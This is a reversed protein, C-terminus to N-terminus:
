LGLEVQGNLHTTVVGGDALHTVKLTGNPSITAGHCNYCGFLGGPTGADLHVGTNPPVGHCSGCYVQPSAAGTWKVSAVKSPSTDRGARAGGGHCYANTCTAATRDWAPLASDAYSLSGVGPVMPFVAAPPPQTLASSGTKAM